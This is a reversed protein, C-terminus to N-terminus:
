ALIFLEKAMDVDTQLCDSSYANIGLAEFMVAVKCFELDHNTELKNEYQWAHILEHCITAFLDADNEHLKFNLKIMHLEGFGDIYGNQWEAMNENKLTDWVLPFKFTYDLYKNFYNEAKIFLADVLKSNKRM